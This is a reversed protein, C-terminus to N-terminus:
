EDHSTNNRLVHYHADKQKRPLLRAAHHQALRFAKPMLIIPAATVFGTIVRIILISSDNWPKLLISLGFNISVPVALYLMILVFEFLDYGFSRPQETSKCNKMKIGDFLEAYGQACRLLRCPSYVPETVSIYAREKKVLGSFTTWKSRSSDM